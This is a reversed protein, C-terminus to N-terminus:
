DVWFTQRDSLVQRRTTRPDRIYGVHEVVIAVTLLIVFITVISTIM